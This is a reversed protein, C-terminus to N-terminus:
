KFIRTWLTEKPRGFAANLMNLAMFEKERNLRDVEELLPKSAAAWAADWVAKLGAEHSEPQKTM